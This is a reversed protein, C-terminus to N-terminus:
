TASEKGTSAPEQPLDFDNVVDRLAEGAQVFSTVDGNFSQLAQRHTQDIQGLAARLDNRLEPPEIGNVVLALYLHHTSELVIRQEEYQIEDLAGLTGRGFADQAFDRIATLMGSILEADARQSEDQQLCDHWLLIGSAGHILFIHNVTCPLAMRLAAEQSEVGRLHAFWRYVIWRMSTAQRMRADVARALDRVAETVARTVLRGIIPYLAEVMEERNSEINARILDGLIPRMTEVLKEPDALREELATVEQRLTDTRTRDAQLLLLRLLELEDDSGKPEPARSGIGNAPTDVSVSKERDNMTHGNDAAATSEVVTM